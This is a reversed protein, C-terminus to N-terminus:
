KIPPEAINEGGHINLIGLKGGGQNSIVDLKTSTSSQVIESSSTTATEHHTAETCLPIGGHRTPSYLSTADKDVSSLKGSTLQQHDALAIATETLSASTESKPGVRPKGSERARNKWKKFSHAEVLDTEIPSTFTKKQLGPTSLNPTPGLIVESLALVGFPKDHEPQQISKRGGVDWEGPLGPPPNPSVSIGPHHKTEVEANVSYAHEEPNETSMREKEVLRRRKQVPELAVSPVKSDVIEMPVVGLITGKLSIVPESEFDERNRVIGAVSDDFEPAKMKWITKLPEFFRQSKRSFLVSGEEDVRMFARFQHQQALPFAMNRKCCMTDRHDLMGCIFCFCPLREYKLKFVLPQGDIRIKVLRRLPKCVDLGVRIRLYKAQCVGDEGLCTQKYVGLADGIKEGIEKTLDEPDLGHIRVWFNEFIMPIKEPQGKGNADAILLLFKDFNWPCGDLVMQKIEVYSVEFIIKGGGLGGVRLGEDKWLPKLCVIEKEEAASLTFNSAFLETIDEM